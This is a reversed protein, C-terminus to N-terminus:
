GDIGLTFRYQANNAVLMYNQIQLAVTGPVLPVWEFDHPNFSRLTNGAADQQAVLISGSPIVVPVGANFAYLSTYVSVAGANQPVAVTSTGGAGLVAAEGSM